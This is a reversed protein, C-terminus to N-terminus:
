PREGSQIEFTILDVKKWRAPGYNVRNITATGKKFSGSRSDILHFHLQDNQHLSEIIGKRLSNVGACRIMCSFNERIFFEQWHYRCFFRTAGNEIQPFHVICDFCRGSIVSVGVGSLPFDTSLRIKEKPFNMYIQHM